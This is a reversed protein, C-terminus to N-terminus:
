RGRNRGWILQLGRLTLHPDHHDIRECVDLVVGAMGGTAITTVGPDLEAAIREVLGDVQAAAGYVIGAQIAEVTTRGIVSPPRRLVVEPLQAARHVLAGASISVGPAIVGGLFAGDRAVVDVTTSTGFDVVIAPGGYLAGAAVANAIRDAGVERPDEYRLPIGTRIGPAVVVVPAAVHEAFAEEVVATVPPVVSAVVVGEVDGGRLRLGVLGLVGDLLLALEDSTREPSTSLRWDHVLDDGDFVGIVTSSNGVDVALLV